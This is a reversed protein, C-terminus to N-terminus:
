NESGVSWNDVKCICLVLSNRSQIGDVVLGDSLEKSYSVSCGWGTLNKEGQKTDNIM